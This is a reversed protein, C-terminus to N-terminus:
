NNGNKIIYIHSSYELTQKARINSQLGIIFAKVFNMKGSKYKESLLSVYFADFKMPLVKELHLNQKQFLLKIATKSFHWLHRPVDYAAWFVGYQKADYSNFNPVAILITGNPKLLRKLEKIQDEINPVHELVHWMTIVDFSHDELLNTTESFSVGKKLAIAKAKESPEVGVCNWGNEKAFFLFEGTGAGIDLLSGKSKQINNILNLKNKLAINKVFHYAKEFFSRKGDTHSIYDESEYYKPLTNEKPQPHTYVLDLTEDRFLEFTEKSVSHDKITLFLKHKIQDM